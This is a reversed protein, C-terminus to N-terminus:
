KCWAIRRDSVGAAIEASFRINESEEARRREGGAHVRLVQPFHNRGILRANRLGAARGFRVRWYMIPNRPIHRDVQSSLTLRERVKSGITVGRAPSASAEAM